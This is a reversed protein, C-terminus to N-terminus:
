ASKETAVFQSFDKQLEVPLREILTHRVGCPTEVAGWEDHIGQIDMLLKRNEIIFEENPGLYMAKPSERYEGIMDKVTGSFSMLTPNDEPLLFGVACHMGEHGYMCAGTVSACRTGQAAMAAAIEKGVEIATKGETIIM